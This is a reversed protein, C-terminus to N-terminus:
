TTAVWMVLVLTDKVVLWQSGFFIILKCFHALSPPILNHFLWRTAYGQLFQDFRVATRPIFGVRRSSFLHELVDPGLVPHIRIRSNVGNPSPFESFMDTLNESAVGTRSDDSSAVQVCMMTHHPKRPLLHQSIAFRKGFPNVEAFERTFPFQLADDAEETRKSPSLIRLRM